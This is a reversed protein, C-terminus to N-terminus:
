WAIKYHGFGYATSEGIHFLEGLLLIEMLGRFDGEAQLRGIFGEMAVPDNEGEDCRYM